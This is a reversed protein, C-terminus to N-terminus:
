LIEEPVSLALFIKVPTSESIVMPPVLPTNFVPFSKFTLPSIIDSTSSFLAIYVPIVLLIVIPAGPEVIIVASLKFTFPFIIPNFSFLSINVSTPLPFVNVIPPEPLLVIIPCSKVMLFLINLSTTESFLLIKGNDVASIVIPLEVEVNIAPPFKFTVPSKTNYESILLECCSAFANNESIPALIKVIPLTAPEIMNFPVDVLIIPSIVVSM